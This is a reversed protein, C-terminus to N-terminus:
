RESVQLAHCDTPMEFRVSVAALHMIAVLSLHDLELSSSAQHIDESTDVMIVLRTRM